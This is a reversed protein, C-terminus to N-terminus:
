ARIASCLVSYITKYTSSNYHVGDVTSFSHDVLYDYTDIVGFGNLQLALKRNFDVIDQNKVSYGHEAEVKEDVPNVTMFYVSANKRRLLDGVTQLTTLFKSALPLDNIGLNFVVVKGAVDMKKLKPIVTKELWVYGEGTKCIWTAKGGVAAKMGVFRSDGVLIFKDETVKTGAITTLNARPPKQSAAIGGSSGSTSGSGGKSPVQIEITRIEMNQKKKKARIKTRFRYTVGEYTVSVIVKGTKKAKLRGNPNLRVRKKGSIVTWELTGKSGALNLQVIQGVRMNFQKKVIEARPKVSLLLTVTLCLLLLVGARQLMRSRGRKPVSINNM